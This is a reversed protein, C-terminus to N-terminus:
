DAMTHSALMFENQLEFKELVITNHWLLGSVFNTKPTSPLQGDFLTPKICSPNTSVVHM